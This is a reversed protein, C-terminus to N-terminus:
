NRSRRLRIDHKGFREDLMRAPIIKLLIERVANVARERVFDEKLFISISRQPSPMSEISRVHERQKDTLFGVHLEPIITYGGNRDVIRILTEISGAEYM